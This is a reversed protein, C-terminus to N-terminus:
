FMGSLTIYYLSNTSYNTAGAISSIYVLVDGTASHYDVRNFTGVTKHWMADDFVQYITFRHGENFSVDFDANQLWLLWVCGQRKYM